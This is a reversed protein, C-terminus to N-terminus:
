PVVIQWAAASDLKANINFEFTQQGDNVSIHPSAPATTGESIAEVGLRHVGSRLPGTHYVVPVDTIFLSDFILEKDFYIRVTDGDVASFDWIRLEAQHSAIRTQGQSQFTSLRRRNGLTLWAGGLVLLLLLPMLFRNRRNNEM